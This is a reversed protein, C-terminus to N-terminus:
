LGPILHRLRDVRGGEEDIMLLPPATPSLSKIEATLERFEEAEGINRGFLVVAYPTNERLIRRELDTLSTSTIGIGLLDTSMAPITASPAGADRQRNAITTHSASHQINFNLPSHQIPEASHDRGSEDNLMSCEGNLM